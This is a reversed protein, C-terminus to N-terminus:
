QLFGMPDISAGDKTMQFYLNAGEVSYYKTPESVYGIIDGAKVYDEVAFPVEKLQGYIASYGDGLDVTVTCGTEESTEIQTVKGDAISLVKDNVNGQIILAPNYKYQDLTAFYTTQEMSYNMIVNGQLPWSMENAADFHLEKQVQTSSTEQTAESQKEEEAGEVSEEITEEVIEETEAGAAEKQAEVETESLNGSVLEPDDLFDSNQMVSNNDAVLVNEQNEQAEALQNQQEEQVLKEQKQQEELAMQEKEAKEESVYVGTMGFIAMLMLVAALMYSKQKFFLTTNKKM